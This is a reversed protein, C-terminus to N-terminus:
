RCLGAFGAAVSELLPAIKCTPDCLHSAIYLLKDRPGGLRLNNHVVTEKM